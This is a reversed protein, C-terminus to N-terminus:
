NLVDSKRLISMLCIVITHETVLSKEPVDELFCADLTDDVLTVEHPQASTTDIAISLGFADTLGM